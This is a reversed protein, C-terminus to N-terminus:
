GSVSVALWVYLNYGGHAWAIGHLSRSRGSGLALCIGALGAFLFGGPGEYIHCLAFLGAAIFVGKGWPLGAEELKWPLYLRFFSEEMYGTGLCSLALITWEPLNKPLVPPIGPGEGASVGLGLLILAPLVWGCTIVDQLGPRATKKRFALVGFAPLTYLFLRLLEGEASFGPGTGKPRLILGSGFFALYLLLAEIM